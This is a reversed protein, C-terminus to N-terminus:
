AVGLPPLIDVQEEVGPDGDEGRHVDLVELREVVHDLPDGPHALLLGDRILHDASGLLHLQDVDGGLRQAAPHGVAVHVGRLPDVRRHGVVELRAVEGRQPLHRQEPEGVLDLDGQLPVARVLLDGVDPLGALPDDDGEGATRLALRHQAAGGPDGFPGLRGLQEGHVHQAAVAEGPSGDACQGPQTPSEPANPTGVANSSNARPTSAVWSTIPVDRRDRSARATTSLM